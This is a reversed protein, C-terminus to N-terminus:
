EAASAGSDAFWERAGASFLMAVAAAQAVVGAIGVLDSVAFGGGAMLGGLLGLVGLVTFVVLVWRAINSRRRSVLLMLALSLLVGAAQILLLTTPGIVGIQAGAQLALQVVSLLISLGFLREFNIIASPRM